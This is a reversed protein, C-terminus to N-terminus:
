NTMPRNNSHYTRDLVSKDQGVTRDPCSLVSKSHGMLHTINRLSFEKSINNQVVEALLFNNKNEYTQVFIFKKRM